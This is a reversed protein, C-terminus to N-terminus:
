CVVARELRLGDSCQKWMNNKMNERGGENHTAYWSRVGWAIWKCNLENILLSYPLPTNVQPDCFVECWTCTHMRLIAAAGIRHENPIQEGSGGANLTHMVLHLVLFWQATYWSLTYIISSQSLHVIHFTAKLCWICLPTFLAVQM